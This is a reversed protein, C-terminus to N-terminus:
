CVSGCDCPYVVAEVVAAAADRRVASLSLQYSSHPHPLLYCSHCRANGAFRPAALANSLPAGHHLTCRHERYEVCLLPLHASGKYSSLNAHTYVASCQETCVPKPRAGDNCLTWTGYSPGGTALNSFPGGRRLSIFLTPQQSSAGLQRTGNSLACKCSTTLVASWHLILARDPSAQSM